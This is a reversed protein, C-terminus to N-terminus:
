FEIEMGDYAVLFNEKGALETFTDYDVSGGNHSFHTLVCITNKNVLGMDVFRQRMAICMQLNMHGVYDIEMDGATCDLSLLDIKKGSQQIYAWAEENFDSTDNGYFLTKGDKEIFYVVPDSAADHTARIATVSHDGVDFPEYLTIRRNEVVTELPPRDKIEANLKDYGSKDSYFVLTEWKKMFGFGPKRMALEEAYLHDIHSHTILCHKIQTMPINFQLSHLYTDPCFDVLLTDDILAQSRTRIFRGGMQRARKCVNCECFVGPVGEAAATGLYKIKM